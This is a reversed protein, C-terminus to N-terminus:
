DNSIRGALSAVIYLLQEPEVPKAIHMQFGAALSETQEADGAYATLAAAPIQGGAEADLSRVQRILDYGDQGPLGIDSLLVDYGNPNAMLTSLAVSASEVATVEVEYQELSITFLQRIDAEDDVVLVRVGALSTINGTPVELQDQLAVLQRTIPLSIETAHTQLPLRVTFTAGQDEGQSEAEVTGGHLEVLHHVISLGLGLGPNSRSRSGDAQRFREFIYPLFEPSIGIGTDSVQIQAHFDSYELAIAIRGGAPTFKIANSLLNWMVQQLRNPDGNIRRDTPELQSEIQINKAEASLRVVEIAAEIVPVLEIPEADLRLRGSSIRSIDL